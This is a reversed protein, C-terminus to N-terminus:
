LPSQRKRVVDLMRRVSVGDALEIQKKLERFGQAWPSGTWSERTYCLLHYM